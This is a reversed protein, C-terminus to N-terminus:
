GRAVRPCYYCYYYCATAKVPGGDRAAGQHTVNCIRRQPSNCIVVSSLRWLAFCYQGGVSHTPPGTIIITTIIQPATMMALWQLLKGPENSSYLSLSLALHGGVSCQVTFGGSFVAIMQM